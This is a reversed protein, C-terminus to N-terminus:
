VEVRRSLVSQPLDELLIRGIDKKPLDTKDSAVTAVSFLDVRGKANGHRKITGDPLGLRKISRPSTDINGLAIGLASPDLGLVKAAGGIACFEDSTELSWGTFYVGVCKPTQDQMLAEAFGRVTLM